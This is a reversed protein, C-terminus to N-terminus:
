VDESEVAQAFSKRMEDFGTEPLFEGDSLCVTMLFIDNEPIAWYSFLNRGKFMYENFYKTYNRMKSHDIHQFYLPWLPNDFLHVFNIGVTDGTDDEPYEDVIGKLDDDEIVYLSYLYMSELLTMWKEILEKREEIWEQPFHEIEFVGKITLFLELAVTELEATKLLTPLRLYADLVKLRDEENGVLEVPIQLNSLYILAQQPEVSSESLNVRLVVDTEGVVKRLVDVPIPVTTDIIESM